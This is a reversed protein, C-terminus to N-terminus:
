RSGRGVIIQREANLQGPSGTLPGHPQEPPVGFLGQVAQMNSAPAALAGVVFGWGLVGAFKAAEESRAMVGLGGFILTAAGYSYPPPLQGAGKWWRYTIISCTVVYASLLNM